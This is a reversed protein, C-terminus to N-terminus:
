FPIRRAIVVENVRSSGDLVMSTIFYHNKGRNYVIEEKPTGKNLVMMARASFVDKAFGGEILILDGEDIQSFDTLKQFWMQTIKEKDNNM